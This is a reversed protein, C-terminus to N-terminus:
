SITSTLWKDVEKSVRGYCIDLFSFDRELENKAAVIDDMGVFLYKTLVSVNAAKEKVAVPDDPFVQGERVIGRIPPGIYMVNTM